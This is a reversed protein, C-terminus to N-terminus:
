SISAETYKVTQAEFSPTSHVSDVTVLFFYAEQSGYYIVGRSPPFSPLPDALFVFILLQDSSETQHITIFVSM